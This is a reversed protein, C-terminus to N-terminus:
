MQYFNGSLTLASLLGVTANFYTYALHGGSDKIFSAPSYSADLLFQWSAAAFASNGAAMAGVGATGIISM